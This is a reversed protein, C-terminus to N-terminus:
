LFVDFFPQLAWSGQHEKKEEEQMSFWPDMEGAKATQLDVWEGNCSLIVEWNLRNGAFEQKVKRMMAQLSHLTSNAHQKGNVAFRFEPEGEVHRLALRCDTNLWIVAARQMFLPQQVREESTISSSQSLSVCLCLIREFVGYPLVPFRFRGSFGEDFFNDQEGEELTQSTMSPILFMSESQSEHWTSMLLLRHMLSILYDVQDDEWLCELLDRSAIGERLLRRADQDLGRKSLERMNLGHVDKDRIVQSISDIVWQPKCIILDKLSESSRFYLVAGFEHFLGLMDDVERRTGLRRSVVEKAFADRQVWPEEGDGPAETGSTSGKSHSVLMDLAKMWKVSVETYVYSLSKTVQEVAQRLEPIGKHTKNSVVHFNNSDFVSSGLGEVLQNKIASLQDREIADAFTGVFLFPAAPAHLDISDTWHKIYKLSKAPATVLETLSFVLLYVGYRTLFLHHLSQFVMQGGSDLSDNSHGSDMQALM